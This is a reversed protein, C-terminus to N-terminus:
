YALSIRDSFEKGVSESHAEFWIKSLYGGFVIFHSASLLWNILHLRLVLDYDILMLVITGYM